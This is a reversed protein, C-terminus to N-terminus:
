YIEKLNYKQTFIKCDVSIEEGVQSKYHEFRDAGVRVVEVSDTEKVFIKLQYSVGTNQKGNQTIDYEKANVSLLQGTVNVVM